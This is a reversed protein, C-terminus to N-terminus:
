GRSVCSPAPGRRRWFRRGLSQAGHRPCAWRRSGRVRGGFPLDMLALCPAHAHGVSRPALPAPALAGVAAFVHIPHALFALFLVILRVVDDEIGVAAVMVFSGRTWHLPLRRSAGRRGGAFVQTRLNVYPSPALVTPLHSDPLAEQRGQLLTVAGMSGPTSTSASAQAAWYPAPETQDVQGYGHDRSRSNRRPSNADAAKHPGRYRRKKWQWRCHGSGLYRTLRQGYRGRGDLKRGQDLLIRAERTAVSPKYLTASRFGRRRWRPRSPPRMRKPPDFLDASSRRPLAAGTACRGARAPLACRMTCAGPRSVLALGKDRSPGPAPQAM